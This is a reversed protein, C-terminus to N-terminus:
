GRGSGVEVRQLTRPVTDAVLPRRPRPRLVSFCRRAEAVSLAVTGEPTRSLGIAGIAVLLPIYNTVSVPIGPLHSIGFTAGAIAAGVILSRGGLVVLLLLELSVSWMFDLPNIAQVQAGYLAGGLAAVAGCIAFTVLKTVTLNVGLTQAATPSDRLISLRRGIPGIRLLYAGLAIAGFIALSLFYLSIGSAFSIGFIQPRPDTIGTVGGGVDVRNFVLNDMILAFAFTALMFYLGKLRLSPLGVLLGVPVAIAMGVLTAFLFHQGHSGALHGVTFAGVGAFSFQALSPQGAWGMLVVLSLAVLSYAVSLTVVGLVAGHVASPLLLMVGFAASGLLLPRHREIWPGSGRVLDSLPDSLSSSDGPSATSSTAMPSISVGAEKLRSGLVILLVFLALYPIGAELDAITGSAGWRSLISQLIGLLLAGGFAWPLGYVFGLVAPAFAYIVVLILTDINLTQTPSLLIGVVAAFMSSIAWAGRRVNAANVGIIGALDGNDVVARTATGFRTHRLLWWLAAGLALSVLLTGLQDYGVHLTSGLKFTSRPFITQLQRTEGGWILGVVTSLVALMALAVVMPIEASLGAVSKFLREFVLGLAPAVILIMIPMSFWATIHWQDHLQWYAFACFMAVAGYAINFVGTTKYTLTVGMAALGYLSGTFIGIVIFPWFTSM